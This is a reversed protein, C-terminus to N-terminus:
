AVVLLILPPTVTSIIPFRMSHYLTVMQRVVLTGFANSPHYSHDTLDSMHPPGM